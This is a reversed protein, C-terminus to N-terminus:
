RCDATQREVVWRVNKPSAPVRVIDVPSTVAAIAGCGRGPSVFRVFALLEGPQDLVKDIAARYGGSPKPGMAAMLLMGSRFDVQPLPPPGGQRATIRRWQGQWEAHSRIALMREEYLGSLHRFSGQTREDFRALPLGSPREAAPVRRWDTIRGALVLQAAQGTLGALGCPFASMRERRLHRALVLAGSPDTCRAEAVRESWLLPSSLLRDLERGAAADFPLRTGEAGIRIWGDPRRLAAAVAPRQPRYTGDPRRVMYPFSVPGRVLLASRASRLEAMAERGLTEASDRELAARWRAQGEAQAAGAPTAAAAVSGPLAALLVALVGPTLKRM